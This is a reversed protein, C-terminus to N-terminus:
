GTVEVAHQVQGNAQDPPGSKPAARRLQKERKSRYRAGAVGDPNMVLTLILSVGAFLVAWTGSIGFWEQLAHPVLAETSLLGAFVAGSVMTIGGVYAFALLGLSALATFRGASVSSFNYAYLTGATAATFSSIGFAAVKVNRVNIGAAAAARENSRVALMQRGLSTRRLNAIYLGIAVTVALVLFGFLPSPEAGDLGRFAADTGLSMGFIEPSPVQVGGVGGFSSNAFLAQEMALAAALTVVALSVGRVRLASVGITVGLATAAVVAILPGFPFPIHAGATLHSLLFGATGSLALQVVSIQGVFGTIVVLSMVIVAGILSNTLAQRFGFPFVILAVVCVGASLLATRRLREPVPVSPLRQQTEDGRGPLEAGRLFLAVTMFAFVLLQQVGPLANGDDTPFWTQTSLYSLVSQLVGILLGATCAIGLSTFRAFLAAALAPVVQLPLTTSDLQVIPAALVGIGGAVVSATLTGALSLGKTSLGALLATQENEAAARTALGFRTWRYLAILVVTLVVVTGALIFRDVPIIAGLVSVATDPLLSPMQRPETGFGLLVAAQATLLLGLSAALKALPPANRLPRFALYESLLGVVAAAVLAGAVSLAPGLSAGFHDSRLAWFAYGALMAVAGTALNIIGSGRFTVVVGLAMGAILAGPGLGLLAFLLLQEM